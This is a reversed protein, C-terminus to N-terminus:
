ETEVTVRVDRGMWNEVGVPCVDIEVDGYWKRSSCLDVIIHARDAQEKYHGDLGYHEIEDKGSRYGIVRGEFVERM